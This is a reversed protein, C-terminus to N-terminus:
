PYTVDANVYTEPTQNRRRRQTDMRDGVRISNIVSYQVWPNGTVIPRVWLTPTVGGINIGLAEMLAVEADRLGTCISSPVRGDTDNAQTALGARFVRGRGRRGLQSTRHSVVLANQLPLLNGSSAGTPRTGTWQLLIPSGQAYPPAPIAKGKPDTDSGIPFLKIWDLKAQNSIGNQTMWTDLAPAVQDNLYDDGHFLTGLGFDLMWNGTITWNTETRSITDPVVECITPLNGIPDPPVSDVVLRLTNAWIEPADDSDSYSGGWTLLLHKHMAM